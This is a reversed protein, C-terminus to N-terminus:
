DADTEGLIKDIARQTEGAIMEAAGRRVLDLLAIAKQFENLQDFEPMGLETAIAEEVLALRTHACCPAITWDHVGLQELIERTADHTPRWHERLWEVVDKDSDITM